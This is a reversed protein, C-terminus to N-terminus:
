KPLEKPTDTLRRCYKEAHTCISGVTKKCYACGHTVQGDPSSHPSHSTCNGENYPKCLLTSQVSQASQYKNHTPQAQRSNTSGSSNNPRRSVAEARAVHKLKKNQIIETDHWTYRGMEIDQLVVGHFNRLTPWTFDEVDCMIEVLHNLRLKAIKPDFESALVARLTGAVMEPLTLDDYQVPKACTRQIYYHPWEIEKVIIDQATKTRGSRKGIKSSSGVEEPPDSRSLENLRISV